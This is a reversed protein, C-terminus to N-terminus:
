GSPTDNRKKAERERTLRKHVEDVTEEKAYRKDTMHFIEMQGGDFYIQKADNEKAWASITASILLMLENLNPEPNKTAIHTEMGSFTIVEAM